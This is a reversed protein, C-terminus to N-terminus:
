GTVVIKLVWLFEFISEWILVGVLGVQQAMLCASFVVLCVSVDNSILLKYCCFLCAIAQDSAM